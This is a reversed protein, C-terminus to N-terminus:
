GNGAPPKSSDATLSPKVEEVLKHAEGSLKGAEAQFSQSQERLIRQADEIQKKLEAVQTERELEASLNRMYVRAKGTWRGVARAVGPMREPGLVVLAVIFCLLIESFSFDFM